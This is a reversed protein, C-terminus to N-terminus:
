WMRGHEPKALQNKRNKRWGANGGIRNRIIAAERETFHRELFSERLSPPSQIDRIVEGGM